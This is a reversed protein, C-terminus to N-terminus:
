RTYFYGSYKGKNSGQVGLYANGLQIVGIGLGGIKFSFVADGYYRNNNIYHDKNSLDTVVTPNFNRSVYAQTRLIKTVRSSNYEYTGKIVYQTIKIGLVWLTGTGQVTRSSANVGITDELDDISETIEISNKIKSDLGEINGSIIAKQIDINGLVELFISKEDATLSNFQALVNKADSVADVVVDEETIGGKNADEISYNKLFSIYEQETIGENQIENANTNMPLIVSLTFILACLTILRKLIKKSM